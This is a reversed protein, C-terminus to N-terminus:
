LGLLKKLKTDLEDQSKPELVGLEGIAISKQLTAIKNMKIYSAIKLGNTPSPRVPIAYPDVGTRPVSSVFAVIMDDSKAPTALVVAPRVKAGSLDTFPFPVLVITGKRM